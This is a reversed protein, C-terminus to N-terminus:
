LLMTLMERQDIFYGVYIFNIFVLMVNIVVPLYILDSVTEDQRKQATLRAERINKQHSLLTELVQKPDIEDWQILLRAFDKSIATGASQSFYTIAEEEQNQRLLRLTKGYISSLRGRHLMLQELVSDASLTGGKGLITINRLFSIAEYIEVDVKDLRSRELADCVYRFPPFRNYNPANLKVRWRKARILQLRYREQLLLMIGVLTVIITSYYILSSITM